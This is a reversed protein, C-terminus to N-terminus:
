NIQIQSVWKVQRLATAKEQPVVLRVLGERRSLPRDDISLALIAPRDATQRLTDFDLRTWFGDASSVDVVNLEDTYRRILELLPVGGFAFPGGTGHGTSVIYCDAVLIQPLSLLDDPTLRYAKGSVFLDIAPDDSPPSPNPDHTHPPSEADQSM